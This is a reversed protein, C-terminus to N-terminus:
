ENSAERPKYEGCTKCIAGVYTKEVIGLKALWDPLTWTSYIRGKLEVCPEKTDYISHWNCGRFWRGAQKCKETM